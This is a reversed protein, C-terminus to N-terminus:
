LQRAQEPTPFLPSVGGREGIACTSSFIMIANRGDVVRRNAKVSISTSTTIPMMAM